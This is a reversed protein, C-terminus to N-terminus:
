FCKNLDLLLTISLILGQNKVNRVPPCLLHLAHRGRRGEELSMNEIPCKEGEYPQPETYSRPSGLAKQLSQNSRGGEGYKIAWDNCPLM